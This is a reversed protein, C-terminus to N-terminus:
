KIQNYKLYERVKHYNEISVANMTEKIAEDYIAALKEYNPNDVLRAVILGKMFREDFNGGVHAPCHNFPPNNIIDDITALTNYRDFYPYAIDKYYWELTEIASEVDEDQRLWIVLDGNVVERGDQSKYIRGLEQGLTKRYRLKGIIRELIDEIEKQSIYLRVNLSYSNSWAVQEINFIYTFDGKRCRFENMARKYVFGEKSLKDGFQLAIKEKIDNSKLNMLKM